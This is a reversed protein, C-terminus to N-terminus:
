TLTIASQVGDVKRAKVTIFSHVILNMRLRRSFSEYMENVLALIKPVKKDYRSYFYAILLPDAFQVKEITLNGRLHELLQRSRFRSKVPFGKWDGFFDRLLSFYPNDDTSEWLDLQGNLVRQVESVGVHWNKMHHLVADVHVRSFIGDQFPLAEGDCFVLNCPGARIRAIKLESLSLDIGVARISPNEALWRGRGCGFDLMWDSDASDRDGNM